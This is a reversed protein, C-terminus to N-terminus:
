QEKKDHESTDVVDKENKDKHNGEKLELVKKIGIIVKSTRLLKDGLLYGKQIEELVVHDDGDEIERSVVIEHVHPDFKKGQAEIARVGSKNFVDMFNNYLLQLGKMIEDSSNKHENIAKVAQGIEDVVVLLQKLLSFNAFKIVEEKEKAWRKRANEFDACLHLYKNWLEDYEQQKKELVKEPSIIEDNDNQVVIDEKKEENAQKNKENDKM